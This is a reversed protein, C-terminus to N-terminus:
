NAHRVTLRDYPTSKNSPKQHQSIDFILSGDVFEFTLDDAHVEIGDILGLGERSMSIQGSHAKQDRSIKYSEIGGFPTLQIAVKGADDETGVLVNVYTPTGLREIVDSSLYLKAGSKPTVSFRVSNYLKSGGRSRSNKKMKTFM